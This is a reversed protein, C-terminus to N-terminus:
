WGTLSGDHLSESSPAVICDLGQTMRGYLLGGAVRNFSSFVLSFNSRKCYSLNGGGM